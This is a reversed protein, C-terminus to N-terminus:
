FDRQMVDFMYQVIEEDVNSPIPSGTFMVLPTGAGADRIIRHIEQRIKEKDKSIFLMESDLNGLLCRENGFVNRLDKMSIEVNKRKQEVGFCDMDMAAEDALIARVDGENWLLAKMGAEHIADITYKQYPLAFRRIMDPSLIDTSAWADSVFVAEAGAQRLQRYRIKEDERYLDCVYFFLDPDFMMLDITKEFGLSWAGRWWATNVAPMVLTHDGAYAILEILTDLHKKSYVNPNVRHFVEERSTLEGLEGGYLSEANYGSNKDIKRNSRTNPDYVTWSTKDETILQAPEDGENIGDYMISDPQHRDIGGKYAKIWEKTGGCSMEWKEMGGLKYRYEWLCCFLSVPIRDSVKGGLTELMIRKGNLGM